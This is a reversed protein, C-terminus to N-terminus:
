HEWRRYAALWCHTGAWAVHDPATSEEEWEEDLLDYFASDACCDAMGAYVVLDGKYATLAQHACPDDPPPWVLLLARDPHDAAVTADGPLVETYPGGTCYPNDPAPPHPDYAIIDVGVQELQWTWYGTGAGVEVVGRGDLVRRMWAVDGPTPISWAYRQCLEFRSYHNFGEFDAVLPHAEPRWRYGGWERSAPLWRVIEWLPNDTTSEQDDPTWAIPQYRVGIYPSSAVEPSNWYERLAELREPM